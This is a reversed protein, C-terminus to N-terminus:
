PAHRVRTVMALVKETIVADYYHMNGRLSNYRVQKCVACPAEPSTPGYLYCIMSKIFPKESRPAPIKYTDRM